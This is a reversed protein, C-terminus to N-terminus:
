IQVCRALTQPELDLASTPNKPPPFSDRGGWDAPGLQSPQLSGTPDRATSRNGMAKEWM